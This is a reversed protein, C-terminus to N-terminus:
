LTTAVFGALQNLNDLVSGATAVAGEIDAIGDIDAVGEIDAIGEVDAIMAELIPLALAGRESDSLEPNGAVQFLQGLLDQANQVPAGVEALSQLGSQIGQVFAMPDPAAEPQPVPQNIPPPMSAPSQEIAFYYALGDSTDGDGNIDTDFHYEAARQVLARDGLVHQGNRATHRTEGTLYNHAGVLWDWRTDGDGNLDEDIAWESTEYALWDGKLFLRMSGTLGLNETRDMYLDKLFILHQTSVRGDGDLDMDENRENVRYAVRWGDLAPYSAPNIINHDPYTHVPLTVGTAPDYFVVVADEQDGDANMDRQMAAESVTTAIRQHSTVAYPAALGTDHVSQTAFDYYRIAYDNTDGDGNVDHGIRYEKQTFTIMPGHVDYSPLKGLSGTNLHPVIPLYHVQNNAIDYYSLVVDRRSGNGNLDEGVYAEHQLFVISVGDTEVHFGYVAIGTNVPQAADVHKYHLVSDNTMGDGDLDQGAASEPVIYAVYHGGAAIYSSGGLDIAGDPLAFSSTAGLAASLAIGTRLKSM